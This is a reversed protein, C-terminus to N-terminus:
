CAQLRRLTCTEVVECPARGAEVRRVLEPPVRVGRWGSVEAVLEAGEEFRHVIDLWVEDELVFLGESLAVDLGEATAVLDRQFGREDLRGAPEGGALVLSDALAPQLDLLVGGAVLSRHLLRLAHM